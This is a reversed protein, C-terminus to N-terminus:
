EKIMKYTFVEDKEGIVQILYMGSTLAVLNMELTTTEAATHLQYVKKGLEDFITIQANQLMNGETSLHIEGTTPNPFITINEKYATEEVPEEGAIRCIAQAKVTKNASYRVCANNYTAVLRYTKQTQGVSSGVTATYTSGIGVNNYSSSIYQQWSFTASPSGAPLNASLIQTKTPAGALCVSIINATGTPSITPLPAANIQVSVANSFPSLCGNMAKAKIKFTDPNLNPLTITQALFAPKTYLLVNNKYWNVSPVGAALPTLVVNTGQCVPSTTSNLTPMAPAILPYIIVADTNTCGTTANNVTLTYTTNITPSAMPTAINANNLGISPSWTYTNAMNMSTGIQIPTGICAGKDAGANAIPLPKVTISVWASTDKCGNAGTVIVKHNGSIVPLYSPLNGVSLNGRKWQYAYGGGGNAMLVSPMNVCFTTSGTVTIVAPPLPLITLTMCRMETLGCADTIYVCYTKTALTPVNQFSNTGLSINDTQNVWSYTYPTTGGTVNSTLTQNQTNYCVSYSNTLTVDMQAYGLTVVQSCTGVNGSADIVIWNVQTAGISYSSPADNFMTVVTCNDEYIPTGLFINTNPCNISIPPPCTIVPNQVDLVNVIQFCTDALGCCNTVIWRVITQGVPFITPANNTISAADCSNTTIPTGLVVNSAYCMGIDAYVMLTNPCVITPADPEPMSYAQTFLIYTPPSCINYSFTAPFSALAGYNTITGAYNISGGAYLNVSFGALNYNSVYINQLAVYIENSSAANPLIWNTQMYSRLVGKSVSGDLVINWSSLKVLNPKILSTPTGILMERIVRGTVFPTAMSTGSKPFILSANNYTPYIPHYTPLISLVSDGDAALDVSRVCKEGVIARNSWSALYNNSDAAVSIINENPFGSPYHQFLMDDTDVGDNGAAAVVLINANQADTIMKAFFPSYAGYNGLSLNLIKADKTIAYCIGKGVDFLSGIGKADLVKIPLIKIGSNGDIKAADKVIGAVHTGHGGYMSNPNTPINDDWINSNEQMTNWGLSDAIGLYTSGPSYYLVNQLYQHGYDIGTDLVGVLTDQLPNYPIPLTTPLNYQFSPSIQTSDGGGSIYPERELRETRSGSSNPTNGNAIISDAKPSNLKWEEIEQHCDLVNVAEILGAWTNRFNAKHIPDTCSVYSVILRDTYYAGGQGDYQFPYTSGPLIQSLTKDTLTEGFEYAGMDAFTGIIRNRGEFDQPPIGVNVGTNKCSSEFSLHFDYIYANYFHPNRRLTDTFIATFGTSIGGLTDNEIDSNLVTITGASADFSYVLHKKQGWIISNTLNFNASNARWLAEGKLSDASNYAIVVHTMNIQSGNNAGIAGAQKGVHNAYLLTNVVNSTNAGVAWIGGGFLTANNNRIITNKITETSNSIFIGGGLHAHNKEIILNQLLSNGINRAFIGGGVSDIQVGVNPVNILTTDGTGNYLTFGKIIVNSSIIKLVSGGNIGNILTYQAGSFSMMTINKNIISLNEVYTGQQVQITDGNIATNIANQINGGTLVVIQTAYLSFGNLLLFIITYLFRKM